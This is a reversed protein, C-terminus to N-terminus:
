CSADGGRNLTQGVVVISVMTECSPLLSKTGIRKDEWIPCQGAAMARPVTVAHPNNGNSMSWAM